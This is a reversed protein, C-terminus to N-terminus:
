SCCFPLAAAAAASPMHLVATVQLAGSPGPSAVGGATEVIAIRGSSAAKLGAAAFGRLEAAVAAAVQRDSVPRGETEVALHPSVPQSWAYCVKALHGGGGGSSDSGGSGLQTGQSGGDLLQAAHPGAALPLRAAAAVLRADSDAPFGTQVPKVYLVSLQM